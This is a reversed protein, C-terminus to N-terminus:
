ALIILFLGGATSLCYTSYPSMHHAYLISNQSFVFISVPFLAAWNLGNNLKVFILLLLLVTAMSAFASIIRGKFVKMEYDDDDSLIMPYLLYQGPSYTWGYAIYLPLLYSKELNRLTEWSFSITKKLVTYDYNGERTGAYGKHATLVGIDDYETYVKTLNYIRLDTALFLIVGFSLLIVINNNLFKINLFNFFRM